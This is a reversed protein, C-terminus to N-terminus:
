SLYVNRIYDQWIDNLGGSDFGYVTLLANDYTSGSKFVNLLEHMKQQGYEEILFAVISYSEAYSLYSKDSYASFPSCLSQVSILTDNDAVQELYSEYSYEMEGEAYMSIGEDLWVPINNYPNSTMQYTVLHALEHALARKGWELNSRSIGIAITSYAPYAVGGTWEKPYVMANRLAFSSAYIYIRIPDELYAGTDEELRILADQCTRMLEEAFSADGYYWYLTINSRNISNWVYNTDDFSFDKIQTESYNGGEDVVSWWYHIITGSPLTGTTRMDWNWSINITDSSSLPVDVIVEHIISSFSEYEVIYHLRADRIDDDSTITLNFEIYNPFSTTVSDNLLVGQTLQSQAQVPTLPIVMLSLTIIVLIIKKIM